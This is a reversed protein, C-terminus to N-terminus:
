EKTAQLLNFPEGGVFFVTIWGSVLFIVKTKQVHLYTIVFSYARFGIIPIRM